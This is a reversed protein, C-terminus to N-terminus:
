HVLPAPSLSVLRCRGDAFLCLSSSRAPFTIPKGGRMCVQKHSQFEKPHPSAYCTVKKM